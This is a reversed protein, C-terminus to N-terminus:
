LPIQQREVSRSFLAYINWCKQGFMCNSMIQDASLHSFLGTLKYNPCLTIIPTGPILLSRESVLRPVATRRTVLTPATPYDSCLVVVPSIEPNNRTM